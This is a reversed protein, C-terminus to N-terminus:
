FCPERPEFARIRLYQTGVPILVTVPPCLSSSPVFPATFDGSFCGLVLGPGLVREERRRGPGKLVDPALWIMQDLERRRFEELEGQCEWWGGGWTHATLLQIWEREHEKWVLMEPLGVFNVEIARPATCANWVSFRSAKENHSSRPSPRLSVWLSIMICSPTAQPLRSRALSSLCM